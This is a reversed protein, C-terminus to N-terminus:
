NNSNKGIIKKILFACFILNIDDDDDDVDIVQKIPQRLTSWSISSRSKKAPSRSRCFICVRVGCISTYPGMSRQRRDLGRCLM